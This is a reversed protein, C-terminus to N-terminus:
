LNIALNKKEFLNKVNQYPSRTLDKKKDNIQVTSAVKFNFLKKYPLVRSKREKEKKKKFSDDM